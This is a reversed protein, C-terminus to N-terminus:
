VMKYAHQGSANRQSVKGSLDSHLKSDPRGKGVRDPGLRFHIASDSEEFRTLVARAPLVLCKLKGAVDNPAGILETEVGSQDGLTIEAGIEISPHQGRRKRHDGLANFQHHGNM